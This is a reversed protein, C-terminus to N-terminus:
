GHIYDALREPGRGAPPVAKEESRVVVVSAVLGFIFQSAVFWPWDVLSRLAPNVVDMLSYSAATWCLPMVLAGWATPGPIVPVRPLVVAFALGFSLSLVAHTAVAAALWSAHFQELDAV